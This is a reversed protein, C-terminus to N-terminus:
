DYGLNSYHVGKINNVGEIALKVIGRKNYSKATGKLKKYKGRYIKYSKNLLLRKSGKTSYIYYQM